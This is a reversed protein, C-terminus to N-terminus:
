FVPHSTRWTRASRKSSAGTSVCCAPRSHGPKNEPLTVLIQSLV